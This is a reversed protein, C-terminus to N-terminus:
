AVPRSNTEPLTELMREVQRATHRYHEALRDTALAVKRALVAEMIKHHEEVVNRGGGQGANGVLAPRRYRETEAYLREALDLLRPSNCVRILALHFDHHSDEVAQRDEEHHLGGSGGLRDTKLSLTHFAAVIDAEWTDGGDEISRRLAECEILIRTEVVDWMEALSVPAVSFGRLAVSTVLRESQLRSLAERLPSFSFGYRSRLVELRLPQGPEFIGAIIDSRMKRYAAESLTPSRGAATRGGNVTEHAKDM